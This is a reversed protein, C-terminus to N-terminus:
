CRGKGNYVLKSSAIAKVNPMSGRGRRLIGFPHRGYWLPSYSADGVPRKDVEWGRRRRMARVLKLKIVPQRKKSYRQGRKQWGLEQCQGRQREEWWLKCM